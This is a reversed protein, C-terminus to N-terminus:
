RRRSHDPRPPWAGFFEVARELCLQTRELHKETVRGARAKEVLHHAAFEKLSARHEVGLLVRDRLRAQLERLRDVALKEAVVLDSTALNEGPPIM